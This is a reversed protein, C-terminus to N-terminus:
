RTTVTGTIAEWVHKAIAKQQFKEVELAANEVLASRLLEDKYLLKMQDAFEGPDNGTRLVAKADPENHKSSTIIPIGSTLAKLQFSSFGEHVSPNVCAYAAGLLKSQITDDVDKLVIVDSRYRYTALKQEFEHAPWSLPGALVLQLNSM